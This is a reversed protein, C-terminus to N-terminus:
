RTSGSIEMDKTWQSLRPVGWFGGSHLAVVIGWDGEIDNTWQRLLTVDLTSRSWLEGFRREIEKTQQGERAVSWIPDRGWIANECDCNGVTLSISSIGLKHSRISWTGGVHEKEVWYGSLM